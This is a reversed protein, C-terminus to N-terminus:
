NAVMPWGCARRFNSTDVMEGKSGSCVIHWGIIHQCRWLWPYDGGLTLPQPLLIKEGLHVLL